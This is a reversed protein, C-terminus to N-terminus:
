PRRGRESNAEVRENVVAKLREVQFPKDLYLNPVVALFDSVRSSLAGGSLFVVTDSLEPHTKLLEEYFEMGTMDPMMLDSLIVDFPRDTELLALAKRASDTCTVEHPRLARAVTRLILEEDDIVLVRGRPGDKVSSNRASSDHSQVRDLGAAPLVIRFLSGHGVSSEVQLTGGASSVIGHCISLGLGTGSGLGKTTFFPEFVQKQHAAPIGAGTDKVEIVIQGDPATRATLVVENKDAQGPEIAHAANVLLNILVQGLRAEDLAARAVPQIHRTVNARNRFEHATTRLAWDIAQAVDGDGAGPSGPRAFAKLDTVVRRIREAAIQTEAQASLVARLEAVTDAASVGNSELDDLVRAVEEQVFEANGIVVALPNNIEHAVGAAMTGLSALRDALELRSQLQRQATVDRFVMVAGLMKGADIVPAVSDSITRVDDPGRALEAEPLHVVSGSALALDIPFERSAAGELHVIDRAPRGIAAEAPTDTLQEAAPNMFTVAGTLDVAIVADAISRLTTAYWREREQQRRELSHRYLSVEIASRLESVKVPKVLYSHPATVKARELTADDAHATLYVVPVGFRDRLLQATEIGDRPGNIRIDMLVLDPCREAACVIAAEGSGAIAYPDYGLERLTQQIDKAVIGEDEVILISHPHRDSM